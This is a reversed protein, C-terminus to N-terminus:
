GKKIRSAAAFIAGLIVFIAQAVIAATNAVRQTVAHVTDIPITSPDM